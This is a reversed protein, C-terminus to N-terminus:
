DELKFDHILYIKNAGLMVEFLRNLRIAIGILTLPTHATFNQLQWRKVYIINQDYLDDDVIPRIIMVSDHLASNATKIIRSICYEKLTGHCYIYLRAITVDSIWAAVESRIRMSRIVSCIQKIEAEDYYIKYGSTRRDVTDIWTFINIM